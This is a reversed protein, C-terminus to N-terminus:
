RPSSTVASRSREMPKPAPGAVPDYALVQAAGQAFACRVACQGVAGLGLVLVSSGETVDGRRAATWATALNDTLLVGAEDDVEDPLTLLNSAADPVALLEAQCGALAAGFGFLESGSDCTAPDGAACGLCWGCGTICSVAVGEGVALDPVASGIEVITGVAEHGVSLGDVAPLDGEYLHLDSGCIGTSTVAIVAGHAGPLQPDPRETVTVAGTSDMVVAQM